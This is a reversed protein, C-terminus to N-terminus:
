HAGTQMAPSHHTVSCRGLESMRQNIMEHTLPDTKMREAIQAPTWALSPDVTVSKADLRHITRPKADSM